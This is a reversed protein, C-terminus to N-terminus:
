AVPGDPDQDPINRHRAGRRGATARTGRPGRVPRSGSRRAQLPTTLEIAAGSVGPQTRGSLDARETLAGLRGRAQQAAELAETMPPVLRSHPTDSGRGLTLALSEPPGVHTEGARPARLPPSGYRAFGERTEWHPITVDADTIGGGRM